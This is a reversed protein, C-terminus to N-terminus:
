VLRTIVGIETPLGIVLLVYLSYNNSFTAERNVLYYAAIFLPVLSNLLALTIVLTIYPSDMKDVLYPYRRDLFFTATQLHYVGNTTFDLSSIYLHLSPFNRGDMSLFYGHTSHFVIYM